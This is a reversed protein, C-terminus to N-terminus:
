KKTFFNKALYFSSTYGNKYLGSIAQYSNFGEIARLVPTRKKAKSRHGTKIEFQEFAPFHLLLDENLLALLFNYKDKLVNINSVAYFGEESTSGIILENQHSRFIFNIDDIVIYFSQVFKALLKPDTIKHFLYSGSVTKLNRLKVEQENFTTSFFPSMEKQYAGRADFVFATNMKYQLGVIEFLHDAGSLQTINISSVFDHVIDIQINESVYELLKKQFIEPTLVYSNEDFRYLFHHIKDNFLNLLYSDELKSFDKFRLNAKEQEKSDVFFMNKKIKEIGIETESNYKNLLFDYVEQEFHYFSNFLLDGLDSVGEDIRSLSVTATTHHSCPVALHHHFVMAWKNKAMEHNSKSLEFLFALGGLGAGIVIGDYENKM